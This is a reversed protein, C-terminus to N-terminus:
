IVRVDSDFIVKQTPNHRIKVNLYDGKEVSDWDSFMAQMGTILGTEPNVEEGNNVYCWDGHSDEGWEAGNNVNYNSWDDALMGRGPELTYNGFYLEPRDRVTTGINWFPVSANYDGGTECHIKANIQNPHIERFDSDGRAKPNETIISIDKTPISDGSIHRINIYSKTLSNKATSDEIDKVIEVSFAASPTQETGDLIGQSSSSVAAALVVTVVVMLMVGIVPSVARSNNFLKFKKIM